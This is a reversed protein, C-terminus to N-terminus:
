QATEIQVTDPCLNEIPATFTGNVSCTFKVLTCLSDQPITSEIILYVTM